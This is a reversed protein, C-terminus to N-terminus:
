ALFRFRGARMMFRYGHAKKEDVQLKMQPSMAYLYVDFYTMSRRQIHRAERRKVLFRLLPTDRATQRGYLVERPALRGSSVHCYASITSQLMVIINIAAHSVRRM